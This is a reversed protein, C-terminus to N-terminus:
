HATSGATSIQEKNQTKRRRQETKNKNESDERNHIDREEQRSDQHERRNPRGRREGKGKRWQNEKSARNDRVKVCKQRQVVCKRKEITVPCPDGHASPHQLIERSRHQEGKRFGCTRGKRSCNSWTSWEGVECHVKISCEMLRDNPEFGDPCVHHCRGLHLYLGAKCRTCTNKNFCSECDAKCEITTCEMLQDNPGLGEPCSELCRGKYLYFGAKCRTCFNKNFCADCDSKCKTCKNIDPSRTGYYGSPCSPLCVGTQRMGNRELFFFLRPKCSLCGNYDSCTACGGQCGHSVGPNQRHQRSRSAHQSDIYEMCHLFILVFSLQRLQM